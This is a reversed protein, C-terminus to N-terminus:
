SSGDLHKQPTASNGQAVQSPVIQREHWRPSSDELEAGPDRRKKVCREVGCYAVLTGDLDFVLAPMGLKEGSLAPRPSSESMSHTKRAPDSQGRPRGDRSKRQVHERQKKRRRNHLKREPFRPERKRAESLGIAIAQKRSKVTGGKGGRGSKLTGRKKRRM